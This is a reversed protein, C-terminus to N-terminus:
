DQWTRAHAGRATEPVMYLYYIRKIEFPVDVGGEVVSLYGRDDSFRRIDVLKCDEVTTTKSIM